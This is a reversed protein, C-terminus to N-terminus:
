IGEMALQQGTPQQPQQLAVGGASRVEAAAYAEARLYEGRALHKLQHHYITVGDAVDDLEQLYLECPQWQGSAMARRMIGDLAHQALAIHGRTGKIPSTIAVADAINMASVVQAWQLETAVGERLATFAQRVPDIIRAVQHADLKGAHWAAARFPSHVRAGPQRPKRGHTM